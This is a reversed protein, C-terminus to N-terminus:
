SSATRQAGMLNKYALSQGHDIGELLSTYQIATQCDKMHDRPYNYLSVGGGGGDQQLGLTLSVGGGGGNGGYNQNYALFDLEVAGFSDAASVRPYNCSQMHFDHDITKTTHQNMISSLYNYSDRQIMLQDVIPKQETHPITTNEAIALNSQNSVGEINEDDNAKTEELYMEEVMPKWLRVRANIFWNSVKIQEVSFILTVLVFEDRKHM